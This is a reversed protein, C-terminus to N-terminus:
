YRAPMSMGCMLWFLLRSTPVRKETMDRVLQNIRAVSAERQYGTKRTHDRYPIVYRDVIASAPIAGIVTRRRRRLTPGATVRITVPVPPDTARRMAKGGADDRHTTPTPVSSAVMM